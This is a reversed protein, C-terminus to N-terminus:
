RTIFENGVRKIKEFRMRDYFATLTARVEWPLEGYKLSSYRERNANTNIEINLVIEISQDIVTPIAIRKLSIINRYQTHYINYKMAVGDEYVIVVKRKGRKFILKSIYGKKTKCIHRWVGNCSTYNM